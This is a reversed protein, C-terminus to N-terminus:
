ALIWPTTALTGFTPEGTLPAALTDLIAQAAAFGATEGEIGASRVHVGAFFRSETNERAAEEFSSFSRTVGDLEQTITSFEYDEGFISELVAYSAGGFTAHGSVYDPFPPTDDFSRWDPDQITLDSGDNGAIHNIVSVPRPQPAQGDGPFWKGTWAIIGANAQAVGLQALTRASDILSQEEAVSVEQGIRLWQGPPRETDVDDVLWFFVLEEQDATREITTLATNEAGGIRRIEEIEQAYEESGFDPYG